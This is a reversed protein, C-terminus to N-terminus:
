TKRRDLFARMADRPEDTTWAEAFCDIGAAIAQTPPLEEWARILMKQLRIARPGCRLLEAIWEEVAADLSAAPVV